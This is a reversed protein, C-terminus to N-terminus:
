TWNTVIIEKQVLHSALAGSKQIQRALEYNGHFVRSVNQHLRLRRRARVSVYHSEARCVAHSRGVLWAAKATTKFARAAQAAVFSLINAEQQLDGVALYWAAKAATKFVRAAQAAVFIFISAEQKM